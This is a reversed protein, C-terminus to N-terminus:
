QNDLHSCVPGPPAITSATTDHNPQADGSHRAHRQTWGVCAAGRALPFGSCISRGGQRDPAFTGRDASLPRHARPQQSQARSQETDSQELRAARSHREAENHETRGGERGKEERMAVKPPKAGKPEPWLPLAIKPAAAEM